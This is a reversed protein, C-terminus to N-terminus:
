HRSCKREFQLLSQCWSGHAPPPLSSDDQSEQERQSLLEATSPLLKEFTHKLHDDKPSEKFKCPSHTQDLVTIGQMPFFM